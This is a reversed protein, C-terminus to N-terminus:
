GVDILRADQEHSTRATTIIRLAELGTNVNPVCGNADRQKRNALFDDFQLEYSKVAALPDHLLVKDEKSDMARASVRGGLYDWFIVGSDCVVELKRKPVRRMFDLTISGFKKRPRMENSDSGYSFSLHAFDECDIELNSLNRLSCSCQEPIGFIWACYDLEHSLEFLAGGGLDSRASCSMRYDINPRWDPLYQGVESTFYQVAGFVGDDILQKVVRLGNNFRMNYGTQVVRQNLNAADILRYAEDISTSIPKEILLDVNSKLLLEATSVHMSAPNAIIAMTPNFAELQDITAIVQQCDIQSKHLPANSTFYIQSINPHLKKIIGAHKKAINGTGIIVLKEVGHSSM